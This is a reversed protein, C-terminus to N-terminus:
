RQSSVRVALSNIMERQRLVEMGTNNQVVGITRDIRALDALRQAQVEKVVDGVRLALERQQWQESRAILARVQQLLAEHADASAPASAPAAARVADLEQRLSTEVANLEARWPDPNPPATQPAAQMWGTRVTLGDQSHTVRLNAAGLGVGICVVAAAARGWAPLWTSARTPGAIATAPPPAPALRAGGLAAPEFARMPEPPAWGGLVQRVGRLSDVEGRCAGCQSLHHEFVSREGPDCEGYLYEVIAAERDGGYGCQLYTTM